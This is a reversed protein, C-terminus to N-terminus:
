LASLAKEMKDAVELANEGKIPDFLGSPPAVEWRSFEQRLPCRGHGGVVFHGKANDEDQATNSNARVTFNVYM